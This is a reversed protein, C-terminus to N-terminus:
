THTIPLDDVTSQRRVRHLVAAFGVGLAVAGAFFYWLVPVGLLFILMSGVTFVMGAVGGGFRIRHMTIGQHPETNRM